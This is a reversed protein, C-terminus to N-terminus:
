VCRSCVHVFICHKHRSNAIRVCIGPQSSRPRVYLFISKLDDGKAKLESLRDDLHVKSDEDALMARLQSPNRSLRENVNFVSLKMAITDKPFGLEPLAAKILDYVRWKQSADPCPTFVVDGNVRSRGLFFRYEVPSADSTM